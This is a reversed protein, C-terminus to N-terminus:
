KKPPRKKAATKAPVQKSLAMVQAHLDPDTVQGGQVVMSDKLIEDERDAVFQGDSKGDQKRTFQSLLNVINRAFLQSTTEPVRAPMNLHGVLTVNGHRVVKGPQSLPCNGGAEVALDVLVAGPKMLDVMEPSVLVPAPRGPILATTIVIDQSQLTTRILAAQKAQYAASMEKAYGGATQAALFEEDEVAIFTAGLSEVQERTAPRVDTASVVGGLRRATAIAQLGAVGVGMIFIKAPPVTGAATMMLPCARGYEALGDLVAKYGAINAQSSLVDMSQARSIRPIRELAVADIGAKALAALTEPHTAAGLLCILVQGKRMLSIEDIGEHPLLPRQIKLIIDAQACCSQATKEIVAGAHKFTEDAYAATIGAGSEVHVDYGLGVLKKVSDPSAAVRREAPMREKLIGIKM